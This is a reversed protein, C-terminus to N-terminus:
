RNTLDREYWSLRKASSEWVVSRGVFWIPKAAPPAIFTDPGIRTSLTDTSAADPILRM